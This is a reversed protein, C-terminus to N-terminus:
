RGAEVSVIQGLANINLVWQSGIQFQQFEELSDVPYSYQGESTEFVVVYSASQEGLRQYSGLQPDPLFPNLDNGTQSAQDVARWEQVTYQCYPELVEYQCDQVVQGVGSGTDVTYPTGCVKNYSGGFPEQDRTYRVQDTCNGLEAEQPVEDKWTEYTVPGLEEIAVNTQWEVSQVTANQSERPSSMWVYGIVGCICLLLIAAVLGIMMKNSLPSPTTVAVPAASAPTEKALTAGCGSCKLSTEPNKTGCNPCDIQKVPKPQYAGMVKGKERRAAEKLDAGCQACIKADAPNRTGCFSCHVDPGVEAQKKLQEDQSAQQHEAQEFQVEQPQPAGCSVCTKETGPNKSRCKPCTWELKMYGLTEQPM